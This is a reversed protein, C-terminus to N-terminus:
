SMGPSKKQAPSQEANMGGSGEPSSGDDINMKWFLTKMDRIDERFHDRPHTAREAVWSRIEKIIPPYGEENPLWWHLM